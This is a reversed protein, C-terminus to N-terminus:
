IYKEVKIYIRDKRSKGGTEALRAKGKGRIVFRDGERVQCDPKECLSSNVFVIGRRVAEQAKARSIGFASSLVSDLRLSAVTDTIVKFEQKVTVAEGAPVIEVKIPTRGAKDYNYRLFDAVDKLIFIDAGDERVLIDGTKERRIGLGTMSGLYDRHTLKGNGRATNVKMLAVPCEDENEEFYRAIDEEIYDPVFVAICREADDFGGYFRLSEDYRYESEVLSRQRLDLFDSCTISYQQVCMRHLDDIRALLLSDERTIDSM